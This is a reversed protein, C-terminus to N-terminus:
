KRDIDAIVQELRANFENPKEAMPFHGTGHVILLKFPIKAKAMDVTDNPTQDTNILYLKKNYQKLKAVEDTAMAKQLASVAIVSDANAVGALVRKRVASDTTPSFLRQTIFMSAVKKFNHKMADMADTFQKMEKPDVKAGVGKFNDVGVLGIVKNSNDIASLLVIDGGMSHGILIVKKLGLQQIVSDVDHSYNATSWDTRNKGSEGFGPLDIAVVRYKKGFFNVQNAWVNKDLCWGHVFLLTTDSKGTDTYAIKVGNDSAPHKTITTDASSTNKIQHNCSFLIVPISLLAFKLLKM